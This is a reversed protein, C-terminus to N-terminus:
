KKVAKKKWSSSAKITCEEMEEEFFYFTETPTYEMRRRGEVENACSFRETYSSYHLTYNNEECFEKAIRELCNEDVKSVLYYVLAVAIALIVFMIGLIKLADKIEKKTKEKM